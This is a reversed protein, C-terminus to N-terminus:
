KSMSESSILMKIKKGDETSQQEIDTSALTQTAYEKLNEFKTTAKEQARKEGSIAAKVIEEMTDLFMEQPLNERVFEEQKENVSLMTTALEHINRIATQSASFIEKTLISEEVELGIAEAQNYLDQLEELTKSKSEMLHSYDEPSGVTCEAVEHLYRNYCEQQKTIIEQTTEKNIEGGTITMLRLCNMKTLELSARDQTIENKDLSIETCKEDAAQALKISNILSEIITLLYTYRNTAIMTGLTEVLNEFERNENAM